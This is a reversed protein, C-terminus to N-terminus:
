LIIVALQNIFERSSTKDMIWMSLAIRIMPLQTKITVEQAAIKDVSCLQPILRIIHRNVPQYSKYIYYGFWAFITQLCNIASQHQPSKSDALKAAEDEVSDSVSSFLEIGKDLRKELYDIFRKMNKMQNKNKQINSSSNISASYDVDTVHSLALCFGIKERVSKYPHSMNNLFLDILSAWFEPARWEVQSFAILFQLCSTQQFSTSTSSSESADQDSNPLIRFALNKFYNLYFTLRRPDQDEYANSFCSKWLSLNESTVNEILLNFVSELDSWLKKLQDFPWYKSGRILASTLEAALKHSREQTTTEKDTILNKLHSELNPIIDITGYNRFLSKFVYFAKKDFKEHGRSEEIRYLQLFKVFFNPDKRFRNVVPRMAKSFYDDETTDLSYFKRRNLNVKIKSPWCYYGWYSKDMFKTESWNSKTLFDPDYLHWKNDERYGPNYTNIEISSVVNKTQEKVLDEARIEITQKKHKVMKFIICLADIAIKRIHINEHILSDVFLEICEPKMLQNDNQCSFLLYMLSGYSTSQNKWSLTSERAISILNDMLNAVLQTEQKSNAVFGDLRKHNDFSLKTKESLEFALQVTGNDLQVRNEFSDFDKDLRVYIKDLLAQVSPKEYSQCRLLVPWLQNLVSWNQKIMLSDLYNNGSIIYLCGKLQDHTLKSEDNTNCKNLMAVVKPVIVLNSHPYHSLFSFLQSQADKRVSAYVSDVSLKFLTDIVRIDLENLRTHIYFTRYQYQLVIRTVLESRLTNKKGLLKNQLSSKNTHHNKWLKEFDSVFFGYTISATCLVRSILQLLLTENSHSKTLKEVLDILFHICKERLGFMLERHRSSIKSYEHNEDNAYAIEFGLGKKADDLHGIQVQTNIHDTVNKYNVARKILRSGSYMLHNVFNLERNREEKSTRSMDDITKTLFDFSENLNDNIFDLCAEIEQVNPIHYKIGLNFIDGTKAWDRVPLHSKFFEQEDDFVFTYEVSSQEIPYITSLSVVTNRLMASLYTTVEKNVARRYWSIIHRIKPMYKLLILGNSRALEAALQLKWEVEIDGREDKLFHENQQYNTVQYYYYYNDVSNNLLGLFFDLDLNFFLDFDPNKIFQSQINCWEGNVSNIKFSQETRKYQVECFRLLFFLIDTFKSIERNKTSITIRPMASLKQNIM